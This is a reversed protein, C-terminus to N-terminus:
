TEKIPWIKIGQLERDGIVNHEATALHTIYYSVQGLDCSTNYHRLRLVFAKNNTLVHLSLFFDSKFQCLLFCVQIILHSILLLLNPWQCLLYIIFLLVFAYNGTSSYDTNTNVSLKCSIVCKHKYRICSIIYSM